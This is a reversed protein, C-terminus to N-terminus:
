KAEALNSINLILCDINKLKVEHEKIILQFSKDPLKNEDVILDFNPLIDRKMFNFENENQNLKKRLM